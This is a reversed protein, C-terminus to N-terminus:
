PYVVRDSSRRENVATKFATWEAEREEIESPDDTADEKQWDELLAVATENQAMSVAEEVLRALYQGITLDRAQAAKRLRADLEPKLELEVTM